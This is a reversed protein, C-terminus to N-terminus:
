GLDTLRFMENQSLPIGGSIHNLYEGFGIQLILQEMKGFKGEATLSESWKQMQRLSEVYTALWALGHAAAQNAEILGASVRDDKTVLARLADKATDLVQEAPPVAAATLATLDPLLASNTMTLDQGDHAM